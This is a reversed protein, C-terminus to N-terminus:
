RPKDIRLTTDVPPFPLEQVTPNAQRLLERATELREELPTLQREPTETESVVEESTPASRQTLAVLWVGVIFVILVIVLGILWKPMKQWFPPKEKSATPPEIVVPTAMIPADSGFQTQNQNYRTETM